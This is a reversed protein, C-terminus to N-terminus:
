DTHKAKELGTTIHQGVKLWDNELAEISSKHRKAARLYSADTSPPMLDFSQLSDAINRLVRLAQIIKPMVM